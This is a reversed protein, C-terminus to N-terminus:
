ISSTPFGQRIPTLDDSFASATKLTLIRRIM